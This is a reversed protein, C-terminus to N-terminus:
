GACAPWTRPSATLSASVVATYTTRVRAMDRTIVRASPDRPIGDALTVAVNYIYPSGYRAGNRTLRAQLRFTPGPAPRAPTVYTPQGAIPFAAVMQQTRGVKQDIVAM